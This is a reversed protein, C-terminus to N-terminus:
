KRLDIKLLNRPKQRLLRTSRSIRGTLGYFVVPDSHIAVQPGIYLDGFKIKTAINEFSLHHFSSSRDDIRPPRWRGVHVPASVDRELWVAIRHGILKWTRSGIIRPAAVCSFIGSKSQPRASTSEGDITGSCRDSRRISGDFHKLLHHRTASETNIKVPVNFVCIDTIGFCDMVSCETSSVVSDCRGKINAFLVVPHILLWAPV